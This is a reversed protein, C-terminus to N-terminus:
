EKKEGDKWFTQEIAKGDKMVVRAKLCGSPFYAVSLGEPKDAVFEAQEALVGNPHWKRFAGHIKGDVISAESQKTGDAYWKTRIGHSVGQKFNESVQMQGNTFWGQSLGQLVGNSIASRSRLTGDSHHEVMFGNFPTPDGPQRLRGEELVLNTRSLEVPGASDKVRTTKAKGREGLYIGIGVVVSLALVLVLTIRRAAGSECSVFTRM